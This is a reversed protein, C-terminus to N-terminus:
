EAADDVSALRASTFTWGVGVGSVPLPSSWTSAPPVSPAGLPSSPLGAEASADQSDGTLSTRFQPVHPAAHSVAL